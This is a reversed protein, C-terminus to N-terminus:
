RNLEFDDIKLDTGTEEEPNEVKWKMEELDEIKGTDTLVSLDTKEELDEIKGEETAMLEKDTLERGEIAGSSLNKTDCETGAFVSNVLGLLFVVATVFLSKLKRM